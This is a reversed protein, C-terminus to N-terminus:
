GSVQNIVLEANYQMMDQDKKLCGPGLASMQFMQKHQGNKLADTSSIAAQCAM